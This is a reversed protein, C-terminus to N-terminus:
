SSSPQEISKLTELIQLLLSIAHDGCEIIKEGISIKANEELFTWLTVKVKMAM